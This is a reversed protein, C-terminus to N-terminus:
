EGDDGEMFVGGAWPTQERPLEVVEVGEEQKREVVTAKSLGFPVATERSVNEVKAYIGSFTGNEHQIVYHPAHSISFVFKWVKGEPITRNSM